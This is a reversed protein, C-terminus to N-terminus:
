NNIFYIMEPLLKMWNELLSFSYILLFNLLFYFLHIFFGLIIYVRDNAESLNLVHNKYQDIEGLNKVKEMNLRELQIRMSDLDISMQKNEGSKEKLYHELNDNSKECDMRNGREKNLNSNLSNIELKARTHQQDLESLNNQLNVINKNAEDLQRHTFALTEEKGKLKGMTNKLEFRTDDLKSMLDIKEGDQRKIMRENDDGLKKFRELDMILNDIRLKQSNKTEQLSFINKEMTNGDHNMRELKEELDNIQGILNDIELNKNELTKYLTNNDNYLKKNLSIKENLNIQHNENDYKLDNIQKSTSERNQKM